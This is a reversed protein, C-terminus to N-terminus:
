RRKKNNQNITPCFIIQARYSQKCKKSCEECKENYCVEGKNNKFFINIDNM